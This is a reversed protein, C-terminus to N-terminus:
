VKTMDSPYMRLYADIIEKAAYDPKHTEVYLINNKHTWVAVRHDYEDLFLAVFQTNYTKGGYDIIDKFLMRITEDLEAETDFEFVHVLVFTYDIQGRYRADYRTVITSEFNDPEGDMSVFEFSQINQPIIHNEIGTIVVDPKEPAMANFKLLMWRNGNCDWQGGVKKCAYTLIYNEGPAFKAESVAMSAVAQNKIWDEVLEGSLTFPVWNKRQSDFYYGKNYIYDYESVTLMVSGGLKVDTPTLIANVPQAAWNPMQGALGAIAGGVGTAMGPPPPTPPLQDGCATLLSALMILLLIKKIM